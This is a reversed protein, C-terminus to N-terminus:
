GGKGGPTVILHISLLMLLTHLKQTMGKLPLLMDTGAERKEEQERLHPHSTSVEKIFAVTYSLLAVLYCSGQTELVM